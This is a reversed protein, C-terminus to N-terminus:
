NFSHPHYSYHDNMRDTSKTEGNIIALKYRFMKDVQKEEINRPVMVVFIYQNWDWFFCIIRRPCGKPLAFELNEKSNSFTSELTMTWLFAAINPSYAHATTSHCLCTKSCKCTKNLYFLIQLCFFIDCQLFVFSNCRTFIRDLTKFVGDNGKMKILDSRLDQLSLPVCVLYIRLTKM